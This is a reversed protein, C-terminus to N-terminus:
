RVPSCSGTERASAVSESDCRDAKSHATAAAPDRTRCEALSRSCKRLNCCCSGSATKYQLEGKACTQQLQEHAQMPPARSDRASNPTDAAASCGGALAETHMAVALSDEKRIDWHRGKALAVLM